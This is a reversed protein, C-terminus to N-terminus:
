GGPLDDASRPKAFRHAAPAIWALTLLEILESLHVHLPGDEQGTVHFTLVRAVASWPASRLLLVTFLTVFAICAMRMERSFPRLRPLLTFSGVAGAVAVAALVAGLVIRRREYWGEAFSLDRVTQILLDHLDLEKNIGLGTLALALGLWFLRANNQGRAQAQGGARWCLVAVAVYGATCVWGIFSADHFGFAWRPHVSGAAALIAETVGM